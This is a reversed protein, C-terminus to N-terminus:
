IWLRIMLPVNNEFASDQFCPCSLKGRSFLFSPSIETTFPLFHCNKFSGEHLHANIVIPSKVLDIKWYMGKWLMYIKSRRGCAFVKRNREKSWSGTRCLHLLLHVSSKQNREPFFFFPFSLLWLLSQTSWTESTGYLQHAYQECKM